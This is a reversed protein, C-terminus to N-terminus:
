QKFNEKPADDEKSDEKSEVVVVILRVIRVILNQIDQVSIKVQLILVVIPVGDFLPLGFLRLGLGLLCPAGFFVLPDAFQSPLDHPIAGRAGGLLIERPKGRSVKKTIKAIIVRM